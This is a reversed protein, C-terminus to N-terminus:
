LTDQRVITALVHPRSPPPLASCGEARAGNAKLLKELAEWTSVLEPMRFVNAGESLNQEQKHGAQQQNIGSGSKMSTWPGFTEHDNTDIVIRGRYVWCYHLHSSIGRPRAEKLIRTLSFGLMTGMGGPNGTEAQMISFM